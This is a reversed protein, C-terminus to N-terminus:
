VGSGGELPMICISAFPVCEMTKQDRDIYLHFLRQQPMGNLRIRQWKVIIKVARQMFLRGKVM